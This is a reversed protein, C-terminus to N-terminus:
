SRLALMALLRRLTPDKETARRAKAQQPSLKFHQRHWMALAELGGPSTGADTQNM